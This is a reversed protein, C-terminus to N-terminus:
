LVASGGPEEDALRMSPDDDLAFQNSCVASPMVVNSGSLGCCLLRKVRLGHVFM